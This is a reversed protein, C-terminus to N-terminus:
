SFEFRKKPRLHDVVGVVRRDVVRCINKEGEVDRGRVSIRKCKNWRSGNSCLYGRCTITMPRAIMRRGVYRMMSDAKSKNRDTAENPHWIRSIKADLGRQGQMKPQDMFMDTQM